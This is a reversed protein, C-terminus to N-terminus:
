DTGGSSRGAALALLGPAWAFAWAALQLAYNRGSSPPAGWLTDLVLYFAVAGLAAAVLGRAAIERWSRPSGARLWRGELVALLLWMVVWAAPIAAGYTRGGFIAIFAYYALAGGLGAITGVPLGRLTRGAAAGLVGGVVTLLVAGHILGAALTHGVGFTYWVWDMATAVAAVVLIGVVIATAERLGTSRHRAPGAGM